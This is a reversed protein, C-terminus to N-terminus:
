VGFLTFSRGLDPSCATKMSQRHGVFPTTQHIKWIGFVLGRGQFNTTLLSLFLASLSGFLTAVPPRGGGLCTAWLCTTSPIGPVHFSTKPGHCPRYYRVGLLGAQPRVWVINLHLNLRKTHRFVFVFNGFNPLKGGRITVRM